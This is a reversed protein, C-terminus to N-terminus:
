KISDESMQCLVQKVLGISVSQKLKLSLMDIELVLRQIFSYERRVRPLLFNLVSNPVICQRQSFHYELLPKISNENLPFIEQASVSRLRSRLDNLRWAMSSIPEESIFLITGSNGLVKQYLFFLAEESWNESVVVDDLILHNEAIEGPYWNVLSTLIRAGSNQCHLRGLSSKGSATPGFINLCRSPSPWNPWTKIWKIALQNESSIILSPAATDDFNFPMQDIM